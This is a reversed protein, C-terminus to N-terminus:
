LICACACFTMMKDLHQNGSAPKVRNSAMLRQTRPEDQPARRFFVRCVCRWFGINITRHLEWMALAADELMCHTESTLFARAADMQSMNYKEMIRPIVNKNYYDLSFSQIRTM